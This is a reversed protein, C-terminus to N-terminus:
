LEFKVDSSPGLIRLLLPREGAREAMAMGWALAFQEGQVDSSSKESAGL